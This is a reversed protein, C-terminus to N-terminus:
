IFMLIKVDVDINSLFQLMIIINEFLKIVERTNKLNNIVGEMEYYLNTQGDETKWL